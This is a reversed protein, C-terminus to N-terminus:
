YNISFLLNFYLVLCFCTGTATTYSDSIRYRQTSLSLSQPFGTKRKLARPILLIIIGFWPNNKFESAGRLESRKNLDFIYALTSYAEIDFLYVYSINIFYFEAGHQIQPLTFISELTKVKLECHAVFNHQIRFISPFHNNM